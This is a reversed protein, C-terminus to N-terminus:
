FMSDEFASMKLFGITFLLCIRQAQYIGKSPTFDKGFIFVEVRGNDSLSDAKVIQSIKPRLM